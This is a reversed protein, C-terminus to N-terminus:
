FKIKLKLLKNIAFLELWVLLLYIHHWKFHVVVLVFNWQNTEWKKKIKIHVMWFNWYNILSINLQADDLNIKKILNEANKKRSKKKIKNKLM